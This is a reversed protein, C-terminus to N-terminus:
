REKKSTKAPVPGGVEAALDRFFKAREISGAIIFSHDNGSSLFRSAALM